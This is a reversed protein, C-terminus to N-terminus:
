TMNSNYTRHVRQKKMNEERLLLLLLIIEQISCRARSEINLVVSFVRLSDDLPM